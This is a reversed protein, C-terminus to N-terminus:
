QLPTSCYTTNPGFPGGCQLTQQFQDAQRFDETTGPYDGGYSFAKATGNYTFWPYWCFPTGNEGSACAACRSV